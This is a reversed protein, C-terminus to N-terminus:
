RCPPWGSIGRHIRSSFSPRIWQVKPGSSTRSPSTRHVEKEPRNGEGFRYLQGKPSIFGVNNFDLDKILVTGPPTHQLEGSTIPVEDFTLLYGALVGELYVAQTTTYSSEKEAISPRHPNATSGGTGNDSACGMFCILLLVPLFLSSKLM